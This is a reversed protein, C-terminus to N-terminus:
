LTHWWTEIKSFCLVKLIQMVMAGVDHAWLKFSFSFSANIRSSPNLGMCEEMVVRVGVVLGFAKM